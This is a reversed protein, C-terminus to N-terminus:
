TVSILLVVDVVLAKTGVVVGESLVLENYRRLEVVAFIAIDLFTRFFSSSFLAAVLTAPPLPLLDAEVLPVIFALALALALAGLALLALRDEEEEEVVVVV